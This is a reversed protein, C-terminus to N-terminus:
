GWVGRLSHPRWTWGRVRVRVREEVSVRVGLRPPVMDM